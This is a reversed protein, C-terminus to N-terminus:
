LNLSLSIGSFWNRPQGPYFYRPANGGFSSANVLIMSAYKENFLNNIGGYLEMQFKGFDNRYGLKLNSVQYADSFISNDDRMPMKDVFRYNINGFLGVSTELDLIGNFTNKPTGTLENGSFDGGEDDIYKDFKFSVFTYNLHGQLTRIFGTQNQIFQYGIAAEVGNHDTKGANVGVFQDQAIRRAILLNKIQMTYITIDYTARNELLSGRSGIEFNYGSEPKIEPNIQGDPTLTEALTPPAFGHSATFHIANNPNVKYNFAIRPSAILDFGFDGSQDGNSRFLDDYEYKTDNLNLGAVMTLRESLQWDGQLFFNVYKRVEINDSEINGPLSNDNEFTSFKHTDRFVEAGYVLIPAWSKQLDLTFKLRSGYANTNERLLGFPRVENANRFSGFFSLSVEANPAIETKISTGLFSRDYDEFGEAALWNGAAAKPNAAFTASDISSPIFAKLDITNFLFSLSTKGSLETFGILSITERDYENNQRYGDSTTNTYNVGLSGSPLGLIVSNASRFLGYSGLQNSTKIQYKSEIGRKTKLNITGGLGAGLESSAPGRIVEVREVLALDIDELTTEGEGSTLPIDDLYGRVRNTSFLSRSGIGRITIRNTNLTGSHMFVGPIRNISNTIILNQDRDLEKRSILAVPGPTDILKQNDHFASVVVEQLNFIGAQLAITPSDESSPINLTRSEYGVHSITIEGLYDELIFQGSEDTIVIDGTELQINVGKLPENNSADVVVGNVQALIPTAFFFITITLLLRM